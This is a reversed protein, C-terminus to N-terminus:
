KHATCNACPSFSLWWCSACFTRLFLLVQVGCPAEWEQAECLRRRSVRRCIRRLRPQGPLLFRVLFCPAASVRPARPGPAGGVGVGTDWMSFAQSVEGSPFTQLYLRTVKSVCIFICNPEELFEIGLTIGLVFSLVPTDTKHSFKPWLSRLKM